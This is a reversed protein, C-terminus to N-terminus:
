RENRNRTVQVVIVVGMAIALVSLFCCIAGLILFFPVSGIFDGM